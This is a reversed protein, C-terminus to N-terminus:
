AFRHGFLNSHEYTPKAVFNCSLISPMTLLINPRQKFKHSSQIPIPGLHPVTRSAHWKVQFGKGGAGICVGQQLDLGLPLSLYTKNLALVLGSTPM